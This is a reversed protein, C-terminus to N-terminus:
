KKQNVVRSGPLQTDVMEEKRYCCFTVALWTRRHGEEGQEERAEWKFPPWNQLGGSLFPVSGAAGTFGPGENLPRAKMEDWWWMNSKIKLSSSFLSFSFFSRFGHVVQSQCQSGPFSKQLAPFWNGPRIVDNGSTHDGSSVTSGYLDSDKQLHIIIRSDSGRGKLYGGRTTPRYWSMSGVSGSSHLHSTRGLKHLRNQKYLSGHASLELLGVRALAPFACPM